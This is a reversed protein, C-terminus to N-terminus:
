KGSPRGFIVQSVPSTRAPRFGPRVELSWSTTHLLMPMATHSTTTARSTNSRAKARFRPWLSGSYRDRGRCGMENAELPAETLRRTFNKPLKRRLFLGFDLFSVQQGIMHMHKQQNWRFIRNGAHHSIDLALARDMKRSNIALAFAIEHTLAELRASIKHARDPAILSRDAIVDLVLPLFVM